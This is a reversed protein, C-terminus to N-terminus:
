KTCCHLGLRTLREKRILRQAIISKFNRLQLQGTGASCFQNTVAQNLRREVLKVRALPLSYQPQRGAKSLM